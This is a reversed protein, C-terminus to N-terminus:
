QVRLADVSNAGTDLMAATKNQQRLRESLVVLEMVNKWMEYNSAISASELISTTGNYGQVYWSAGQDLLFRLLTLNKNFLAYYMHMQFNNLTSDNVGVEVVRKIIHTKDHRQSLMVSCELRSLPTPLLSQIAASDPIIADIVGETGFTFITSQMPVNDKLIAIADVGERQVLQQAFSFNSRNIASIFLSDPSIPNQQSAFYDRFHQISKVSNKEIAFQLADAHNKVGYYHSEPEAIFKKDDATWSDLLTCALAPHDGEIASNVLNHTNHGFTVGLGYNNVFHMLVPRNGTRAIHHFISSSEYFALLGIDFKFLDVSKQMILDILRYNANLVAWTLPHHWRLLNSEMEMFGRQMVPYEISDIKSLLLEAANTSNNMAAWNLLSLGRWKDSASVSKGLAQALGAADDAKITAFVARLKTSLQSDSELIREVLQPNGYELAKSYIFEMEQTANDGKLVVALHKAIAAEINKDTSYVGIPHKYQQINRLSNGSNLRDILEMALYASVGVNSENYAAWFETDKSEIEQNITLNYARGSDVTSSNPLELLLNVVDSRKSDLAFLFYNIPNGLRPFKEFLQAIFEVSKHNFIQRILNAGVSTNPEMLKGHFHAFPLVFRDILGALENPTKANAILSDVYIPVQSSLMFIKQYADTDEIISWITKPLDAEGDYDLDLAVQMSLNAGFHILIRALGYNEAELAHVIPPVGYPHATSNVDAGHVLLIVAVEDAEVAVAFHLLSMKVVGSDSDVAVLSNPDVGQNLLERVRDVNGTEIAVDISEHTATDPMVQFLPDLVGVCQPTFYPRNTIYRDRAIVGVEDPAFISVGSNILEVVRNTQLYGIARHLDRIQQLESNQIADGNMKLLLGRLWEWRSDLADLLNSYYNSTPEPILQPMKSVVFGAFDRNQAEVAELLVNYNVFQVIGACDRILQQARKNQHTKILLSLEQLKISSAFVGLNKEIVPLMHWSEDGGPSIIIEDLVNNPLRNKLYYDSLFIDLVRESKNEVVTSLVISYMDEPTAYEKSLGIDMLRKFWVTNDHKCVATLMETFNNRCEVYLPSKLLIGIMWEVTQNSSSDIAMEFLAAGNGNGLIPMRYQVGTSGPIIRPNVGSVYARINLKLGNDVAYKFVGLKNPDSFQNDPFVCLSNFNSFINANSGHLLRILEMNGEFLATSLLHDSAGQVDVRTFYDAINIQTNRLLLLVQDLSLEKVAGMADSVIVSDGFLLAFDVLSLGVPTPAGLAESSQLLPHVVGHNGSVVHLLTQDDSIFPIYTGFFDKVFRPEAALMKLGDSNLRLRQSPQIRNFKIGYFLVYPNPIQFDASQAPIESFPFLDNQVYYESVRRGGYAFVQQLLRRDTILNPYAEDVVRILELYDSGIAHRLMEQMVEIDLVSQVNKAYDGYVTKFASVFNSALQERVEKSANTSSYIANISGLLNNVAPLGKGWLCNSDILIDAIGTESQQVLPKSSSHNLLLYALDHSYNFDDVLVRVTNLSPTYGKDLLSKILVASCAANFVIPMSLISESSGDPLVVQNPFECGKELLFWLVVSANPYSDMQLFENLASSSLGKRYLWELADYYESVKVDLDAHNKRVLEVFAYDINTQNWEFQAASSNEFVIGARDCIERVQLDTKQASGSYVHGMLYALTLTLKRM